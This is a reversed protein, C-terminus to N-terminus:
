GSARPPLAVRDRAPFLIAGPRPSDANPKEKECPSTIEHCSEETRQEHGGEHGAQSPGGPRLVVLVGLGNEVLADLGHPALLLQAHDLGGGPLALACDAEAVVFALEGALRRHLPKVLRAPLELTLEHAVLDLTDGDDVAVFSPPFEAVHVHF